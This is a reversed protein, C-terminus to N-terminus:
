SGLAAALELRNRPIFSDSLNRLINPADHRIMPGLGNQRVGIAPRHAQELALAHRPTKEIAQAGAAQGLGDAGLGAEFSVAVRCAFHYPHFGAIEGVGAEDEKPPGIGKGAVLMQPREHLLRVPGPSTDDDDVRGPRAGSAGGILPNGDVGAGIAGQRQGQHVHDDALAQMVLRVHSGMGQTKGLQGFTHALIRRFPCGWDCANGSFANALKGALIGRRSRCGDADIVAQLAMGTPSRCHPTKGTKGTQYPGPALTSAADKEASAAAEGEIAATEIARVQQRSAVRARDVHVAQAIREAQIGDPQGAGVEVGPGHVGNRRRILGARRDFREDDVVAIGGGDGGVLAGHDLTQAAIVQKRHHQLVELGVGGIIGVDNKRRRRLKLMPVHELGVTMEVQGEIAGGDGWDPLAQRVAFDKAAQSHCHTEVLRAEALAVGLDQM